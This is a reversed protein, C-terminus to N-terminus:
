RRVAVVNARLVYAHWPHSRQGSVNANHKGIAKVVHCYQVTMHEQAALGHGGVDVAESKEPSPIRWGFGRVGVFVLTRLMQMTNDLEICLAAKQMTNNKITRFMDLPKTTLFMLVTDFNVFAAAELANLELTHISTPLETDCPVFLRICDM